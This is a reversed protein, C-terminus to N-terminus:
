NNPCFGFVQSPGSGVDKGAISQVAASWTQNGKVPGVTGMDASVSGSADLQGSATAPLGPGSLKFVVTDGAKAGEIKAVATMVTANLCVNGQETIKTDTVRAASAPAATPATTGAVTATPAVTPAVFSATPAATAPAGQASAFRTAGFVIAAVLLVGGAVLPLVPRPQPQANPDRFEAPIYDEAPRQDEAEEAKRQRQAEREDAERTMRAVYEQVGSATAPDGAVPVGPDTSPGRDGLMGSSEIPIDASDGSIPVVDPPLDDGPPMNAFTANGTDVTDAPTTAFTANGTDVPTESVDGSTADQGAEESSSGDSTTDEASTDDSPGAPHGSGDNVNGQYVPDGGANTGVQTPAAANLESSGM